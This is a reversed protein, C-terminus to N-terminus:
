CAAVEDWEDPYRRRNEAEEIVAEHPITIGRVGPEYYRAWAGRDWHSVEILEGPNVDGFDTWVKDLTQRSPSGPRINRAEYFVDDVADAGFIRLKRYLLPIVPGYDWAQFVTDILQAGDNLAAHEVQALYLLKQLELNSLSWRSRECLYRAASDVRIPM